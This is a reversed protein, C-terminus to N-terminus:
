VSKGEFKLEWSVEKGSSAAEGELKWSVGTEVNEELGENSIMALDDDESKEPDKSDSPPWEESPWISDLSLNSLRILIIIWTTIM